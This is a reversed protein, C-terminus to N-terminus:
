KDGPLTYIRDEEPVETDDGPAVLALRVHEAFSEAYAVRQADETTLAFTIPVGDRDRAREDRDGGDKLPTLKGVDIVKAGSVIVRSESPTSGRGDGGARQEGEFTAYINVRNGPRIKGAVGTEADIMIAIEQEGAELEPREALMDSQLLSGKKLPNVAIKRRIDDLDTVATAPLWRKPMSVETFQSSDLARYAPVDEKLEYATTEEGVKSEVNRVVALVGAFAALACLGSLVLLLVGRRQRSNM